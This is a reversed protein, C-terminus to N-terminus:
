PLLRDQQTRIARYCECSAAELARRDLVRVHGHTYSIWGADQLAGAVVTVTQRRVGLMIALFEHSLHFDDAHIRDHTELLRRCCREYVHHLANCATSHMMQAIAVQGYRGILSHLVQGRTIERRFATISLMEMDTDPVQLMTDGQSIAESGLFAEIGVMGEDGITAVEVMTGNSQVMTVSIVGGNPFYVHEIPKGQRHFTQRINAPVTRLDRAIRQFDAEPLSALLRNRPRRASPGWSNQSPTPPDKTM